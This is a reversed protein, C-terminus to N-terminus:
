RIGSGSPTSSTGAMTEGIYRRLREILEEHIYPPMVQVALSMRRGNLWVPFFFMDAKDGHSMLYHVKGFTEENTKLVGLIIEAQSGM